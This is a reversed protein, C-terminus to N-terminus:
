TPFISLRHVQNACATKNEWNNANSKDQSKNEIHMIYVRVVQSKQSSQIDM